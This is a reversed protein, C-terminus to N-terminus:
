GYGLASVALDADLAYRVHRNAIDLAQRENLGLARLIAYAMSSAASGHIYVRANPRALASLALEIGPGFWEKPKHSGDDATPCWLYHGIQSLVLADHDNDECNVVHNFGANVLKQADESAQYDYGGFCEGVALRPTVYSAYRSIADGAVPV